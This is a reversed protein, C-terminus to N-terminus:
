NDPVPLINEMMCQLPAPLREWESPSFVGFGFGLYGLEKRPDVELECFNSDKSSFIHLIVEEFPRKAQILSRRRKQM